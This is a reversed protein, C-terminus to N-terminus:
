RLSICATEFLLRLIANATKINSRLAMLNVDGVSESIASLLSAEGDVTNGFIKHITQPDRVFRRMWAYVEELLPLSKSAVAFYITSLAYVGRRDPDKSQTSLQKHVDICSRALAEAEEVQGNRHLLVIHFIKYDPVSDTDKFRPWTSNPAVYSVGVPTVSLHGKANILSTFLGLCQYPRM